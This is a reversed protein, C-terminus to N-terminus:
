LELLFGYLERWDNSADFGFRDDIGVNFYFKKSFDQLKTSSELINGNVQSFVIGDEAMKKLYKEIEAEYSSTWFILKIFSLSSLLRLAEKAYPFYEFKENELSYSSKFITGHCDVLVYITDWGKKKMVEFSEELLSAASRM